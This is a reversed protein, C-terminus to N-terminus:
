DTEVTKERHLLKPLRLRVDSHLHLQHMIVFGPRQRSRWLSTRLTSCTALVVFVFLM